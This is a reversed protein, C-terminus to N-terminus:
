RDELIKEIIGKFQKVTQEINSYPWLRNETNIIYDSLAILGGVGYSLEKDDRAKFQSLSNSLAADELVKNKGQIESAVQRDKNLLRAQRTDVSAHFAVVKINDRGLTNYCLIVEDIARLGSLFVSRHSSFNKKIDELARATFYADDQSKCEKAVKAINESTADLGRLELEKYVYTGTEVVPIQLDESVLRAHASKGSLPMGTLIVILM